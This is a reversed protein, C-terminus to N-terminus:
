DDSWAFQLELWITECRKCPRLETTTLSTTPVRNGPTLIAGCLAPHTPLDRMDSWVKHMTAKRSDGGSDLSVAGPEVQEASM